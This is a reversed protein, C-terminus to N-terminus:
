TPTGTTQVQAMSPTETGGLDYASEAKIKTMDPPSTRRPQQAFGLGDLDPPWFSQINLRHFCVSHWAKQPPGFNRQLRLWTGGQFLYRDTVIM